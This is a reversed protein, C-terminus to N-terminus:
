PGNKNEIVKLTIMQIDRLKERSIYFFDEDGNPLVVGIKLDHKFNPSTKLDSFNVKGLKGDIAIRFVLQM